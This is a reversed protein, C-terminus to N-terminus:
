VLSVPAKEINVGAQISKRRKKFAKNRGTTLLKVVEELESGGTKVITIDCVDILAQSQDSRSICMGISAMKVAESDDVSTGLYLVPGLRDIVETIWTKTVPQLNYM